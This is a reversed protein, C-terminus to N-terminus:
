WSDFHVIGDLPLRGAPKFDTGKTYAIPFLGAQTFDDYPIGLVGDEGALMGLGLFVLLIPAGIRRSLVGAIISLLGLAGGLLILEHSRAMAARGLSVLEPGTM